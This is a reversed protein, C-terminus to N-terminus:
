FIFEIEDFEDFSPIEFSKLQKEIVEKPITKFKRKKLNEEISKMGNLFVVGIKKYQTVPFLSLKKRRTEKSLNTMDIVVNNKNKIFENMDILTQKHAKEINKEYNIFDYEMKSNEFYKDVSVIKHKSANKEIWTSKGSGSIGIMCIVESKGNFNTYEMNNYPIYNRYFEFIEMLELEQEEYDKHYERGFADAEVFDIFTQYFGEQHNGLLGDIEKTDINNITKKKWLKGHWNILKLINLIDLNEFDKKAHKLIDISLYTSYNEHFFFSVRGNDKEYRTYSKGIDHLIAAFIKNIDNDNIKDLVMLTHIWVDDELHFPNENGNSHKHYTQKMKLIDTNYHNEFWNLIQQKM